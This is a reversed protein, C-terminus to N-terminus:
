SKKSKRRTTTACLAGGFKNYWDLLCVADAEHQTAPKERGGLVSPAHLMAAEKYFEKDKGEGFAEKTWRRPHVLVIKTDPHAVEAQIAGILWVTKRGLSGVFDEIVVVDWPAQIYDQPNFHLAIYQLRSAIDTDPSTTITFCRRKKGLQYAVGCNAIGPDIALINM